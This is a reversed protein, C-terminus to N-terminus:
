TFGLIGLLTGNAYFGTPIDKGGAAVPYVVMFEKKERAMDAMCERAKGFTQFVHFVEFTKPNLFIYTDSDIIVERKGIMINTIKTPNKAM